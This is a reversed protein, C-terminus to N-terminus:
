ADGEQQTRRWIDNEQTRRYFRLPESTKPHKITMPVILGMAEFIDLALRVGDDGADANHGQIDQATFPKATLQDTEGPIPETMSAITEWISNQLQDLQGFPQGALIPSPIRTEAPPEPVLWGALQTMREGLETQRNRIDRLIDHPLRLEARVEPERLYRDPELSYDVERLTRRSVAVGMLQAPQTPLSKVIIGQGMANEPMLSQGSASSQNLFLPRPLRDPKKLGLRERILEDPQNVLEIGDDTDIPRQWFQRVGDQQVELVLIAPEESDDTRKAPLYRASVLVAGPVPRLLLGLLSEDQQLVQITFPVGPAAEAAQRNAAVAQKVLMLDNPQQPDRTLDRGRGSIYGDFLPRLFWTIANDTPSVKHVLLLHTRLTSYPQIADDPLTVVAELHHDDIARSRFDREKTSGSFLLGSPALLAARGDEALHALALANLATESRTGYDSRVTEGFPPNMVIGDFLEDKRVASLANGERMDAQKGHLLANARALRAWEPSIEVGYLDGGASNVLLGGSGCAFDAVQKPETEALDVMLQVIHRPTPYRGGKLMEPLRFLVHRDFLEAAGGAQESASQLWGVVETESFDNVGSLKRPLNSTLSVREQELLCAAVHEIIRLDESIGVRRFAAWINNLLVSITEGAM